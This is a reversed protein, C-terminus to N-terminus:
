LPTEAKRGLRSEEPKGARAETRGASGGPHMSSPPHHSAPFTSARFVVARRSSWRLGVARLSVHWIYSYYMPPLQTWLPFLQSIPPQGWAPLVRRPARCRLGEELPLPLPPPLLFFLAGTRVLAPRVSVLAPRVSVLAPQVSVLAPRVSVLTPRVSVLAPRVSVLAPRVSVLAPRVGM